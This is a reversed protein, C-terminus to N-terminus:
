SVTLKVGDWIILGYNSPIANITINDTLWLEKTELTQIEDSPTVEYSGEYAQPLLKDPITLTGSLTYTPTLTGTLTAGSTLTGTINM